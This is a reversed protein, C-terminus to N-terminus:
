GPGGGDQADAELLHAEHADQGRLQARVRDGREPQRGAVGIGLEVVPELRAAVDDVLTLTAQLALDEPGGVQPVQRRVVEGAEAASASAPGTSTMSASTRQAGASIARSTRESRRFQKRSSAPTSTLPSSCISSTRPPRTSFM